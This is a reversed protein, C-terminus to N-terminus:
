TGDRFVKGERAARAYVSSPRDRWQRFTREDTVLVDASVRLPDLARRLRVMEDVVSPVPQPEVVLFDLDSHVTPEGRAYSGFLIVRSGPAAKLLREAAERVTGEDFTTLEASM